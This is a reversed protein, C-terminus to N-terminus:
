SGLLILEQQKATDFVTQNKLVFLESRNQNWSTVDTEFDLCVNQGEEWLSSLCQFNYCLKNKRTNKGAPLLIPATFKETSVFPDVEFNVGSNVTEDDKRQRGVNANTETHSTQECSEPIQEPIKLFDPQTMTENSRNESRVNDDNSDFAMSM